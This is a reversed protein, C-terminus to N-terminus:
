ELHDGLYQVQCSVLFAESESNHQLSIAIITEIFNNWSIQNNFKHKETSSVIAAKLAKQQINGYILYIKWKLGSTSKFPTMLLTNSVLEYNIWLVRILLIFHVFWALFMYIDATLVISAMGHHQVHLTRSNEYHPLFVFWVDQFMWLKMKFPNKEHTDLIAWVSKTHTHAEPLSWFLRWKDIIRTGDHM